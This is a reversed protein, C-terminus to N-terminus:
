SVLTSAADIDGELFHVGGYVPVRDWKKVGRADTPVEVHPTGVAPPAGDSPHVLDVTQKLVNELNTMALQWRITELEIGISM